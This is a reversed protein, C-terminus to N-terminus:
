IASYLRLVVAHPPSLEAVDECDVVETDRVVDEEEVAEEKAVEKDVVDEEAIVDDDEGLGAEVLPKEVIVLGHIM